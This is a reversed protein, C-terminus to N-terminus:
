LSRDRDSSLFLEAAVGDALLQGEDTLFFIGNEERLLDREILKKTAKQFRSNEQSHDEAKRFPFLDSLKQSDCGKSTRLSTMVYENYRQESTLTEIEFCPQGTHNKTLYDDLRSVNWQRSIGNFSHASPGLGLYHTGNWYNSNHMSEFGPLAFNSIEYHLYGASKLMERIMKFHAISAEESPRELKGKRILIDLATYPEVTLSYASIHPVKLALAREVNKEWQGPDLSPIGYILDISINHYGEDQLRYVASEAQVASHGRNLWLLDKEFFSQIGISFRNFGTNKLAEVYEKSVDEPNIELTIEAPQAPHNVLITELVEQLKEAPYITPTGGGFYITHILQGALYSRSREAEKKLAELLESQNKRSSLSFFNCYHCKQKCFPIHIYIGAM